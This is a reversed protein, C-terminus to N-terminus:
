VSSKMWARVTASGTPQPPPSDRVGPAEVQYLHWVPDEDRMGPVVPEHRSLQTLLGRGDAGLAEQVRAGDFRAVLVILPDRISEM